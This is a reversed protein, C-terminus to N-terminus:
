DDDPANERMIRTLGELLSWSLEANGQVLQRFETASLHHAVLPSDTTITALRPGPDLLAIEGFYDGPGLTHKEEGHVTVKATGSEIVFFGFGPQGEKTIQHGTTFSRENFMPVLSELDDDSLSSFLPVQKLM